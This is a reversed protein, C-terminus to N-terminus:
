AARERQPERRDPPSAAACWEAFTREKGPAAAPRHPHEDTVAAAVEARGAVRVDHERGRLERDVALLVVDREDRELIEAGDRADQPSSAARQSVTTIAPRDIPAKSAVSRATSSARTAPM